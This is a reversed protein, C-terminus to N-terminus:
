LSRARQLIWINDHDDMLLEGSTTGILDVSGGIVRDMEADTLKRPSTLAKLTDLENDPKLETLQSGFAQDDHVILSDSLPMPEGAGAAGGTALLAFAGSIMAMTIKM